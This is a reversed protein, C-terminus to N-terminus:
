LETHRKHGYRQEAIQERRAKILDARLIIIQEISLYCLLREVIYPSLKAGHKIYQWSQPHDIDLARMMHLGSVGLMSQIRQILNHSDPTGAPSIFKKPM